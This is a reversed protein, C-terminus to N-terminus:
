QQLPLRMATRRHAPLGRAAEAQLIGRLREDPSPVQQFGMKAYAPGNWPVDTFTTLTVAQLGCVKAHETAHQRLTKAIGKRQWDSHVSLEWIHLEDGFQAAALFGVLAGSLPHAVWVTRKKILRHHEAVSTVASTALWGLGPLSAFLESASKEIRPLPAADTSEALRVLMRQPQIM